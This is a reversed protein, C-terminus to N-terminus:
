CSPIQEYLCRGPIVQCNCNMSLQPCGTHHERALMRTTCSLNQLTDIRLQPSDLLRINLHLVSRVRLHQLLIHVTHRLAHPACVLDGLLALLAKLAGLCRRQHRPSRARHLHRHVLLILRATDDGSLIQVHILIIM